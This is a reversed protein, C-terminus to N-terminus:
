YGFNMRKFKKVTNVAVTKEDLENWPNVVRACLFRNRQTRNKKYLKYGHGRTRSEMSIKFFKHASIAEKGTMFEYAETLDGRTRRKELNTSRYRM